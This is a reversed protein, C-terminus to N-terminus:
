SKSCKYQYMCEQVGIGALDTGPIRCGFIEMVSKELCFEDLSDKNGDHCTDSNLLKKVVYTRFFILQLFIWLAINYTLVSRTILFFVKSLFCKFFCKFFINSFFM